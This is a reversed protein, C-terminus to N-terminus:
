RPALADVIERSSPTRGRLDARPGRPERLGLRRETGAVDAPRDDRLDRTAPDIPLSQSLQEAQPNSQAGSQGGSQGGVPAGRPPLPAPRAPPPRYAPQTPLLPGTNKDQSLAPAAALALLGALVLRYNM